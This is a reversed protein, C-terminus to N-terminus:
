RRSVMYQFSIPMTGARIAAADTLLRERETPRLAASGELFEAVTDREGAKLLDNVLRLDLGLSYAELGRSPPVDVAELMHRVAGSKDGERLAHVALAIRAHYLAKGYDPDNRFKPALVLTEQAYQKSRAFSAEAAARDKNWDRSEGGMYAYIALEPLMAFRESEPLEAVAQPEAERLRADEEPTLRQRAIRKAAIEGGALVAARRRLRDDLQRRREQTDFTVLLTRARTQQPDIQLARELLQRGLQRRDEDRYTQALPGAAALLLVADNSEALRQRAHRAYPDSDIRTRPSGDRPDTPGLIVSGYFNGLRESAARARESGAAMAKARLLMQEAIALDSREFFYAANTLVRASADPKATQALWRKRAEAYSVADAEASVQWMALEHDPYNEILWLLHPRRRAIMENWGFVKQGSWQYFIQLKRLTEFDEPTRKLSAELAEVEAATLNKASEYFAGRAKDKKLQEAVQPDPQLASATQQQRCSGVIAIAAACTMFVVAKRVGSMEQADGRLVLDIRRGLRGNGGAGIGQWAVRAGRLRVAEAVDLLVEAYRQRNGIARVAAADAADEATAALTRELWWALPHFWFVCRNVHAIFAVLPDRRRIHALEHAVCARLKEAPWDKWGAPLIITPALVGVSLPAAVLASERVPAGCAHSVSSAHRTLRAAAFWGVILRVALILAGIGYAASALSAFSWQSMRDAVPRDAAVPDVMPVVSTRDEGIVTPPAPKPAIDSRVFLGAPIDQASVPVPVAFTPVISALVPMLLMVVLVVTWVAHRVGNAQVRMVMLVLAAIVAVVSIRLSADLLIMM